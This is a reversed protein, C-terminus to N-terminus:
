LDYEDSTSTSPDRLILYAQFVIIFSSMAAGIGITLNSPFLFIMVLLVVIMMFIWFTYAPLNM